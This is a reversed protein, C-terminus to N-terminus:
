SFLYVLIKEHHLFNTGTALRNIINNTLYAAFTFLFFITHLYKLSFKKSKKTKRRKPM